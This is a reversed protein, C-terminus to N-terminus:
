FIKADGASKQEMSYVGQIAVQIQRVAPFQKSMEFFIELAESYKRSYYYADALHILMLPDNFEIRNKNSKDRGAEMHSVAKVYDKKWLYYRGLAYNLRAFRKGEGKQALESASIVAQPFDIGYNCCAMLLEAALDPDSKSQRLQEFEGEATDKQGLLFQATARRIKLRNQMRVPWKSEALIKEALQLSKEAAGSMEYAECLYMGAAASLKPDAGSAAEQLYDIAASAYLHFLNQLLMPDYFRIVKNEVLVEEHFFSRLDSQQLMRLGEDVRNQAAYVGVIDSVIRISPQAGTPQQALARSCLAAPDKADLGLRSYASALSAAITPDSGNRSVTSWLKEAQNRKGQRYYATALDIGALQRDPEAASQDNFFKTLFAKSETLEGTQLLTKGLYLKVLRSDLQQEDAILRTLYDLSLRLSLGYLQQYLRATQLCVMGLGLQQKQKREAAPELHQTRLVQLADDYRHQKYLKMGRNLNDEASLAIGAALVVILLIVLRKM